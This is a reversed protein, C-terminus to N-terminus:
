SRSYDRALERPVGKKKGSRRKLLEKKEMEICVGLKPSETRKINRIKEKTERQEVVDHQIQEETRPAEKRETKQSKADAGASSTGHKLGVTSISGSQLDLLFNCGAACSGCRVEKKPPTIKKKTRHPLSSERRSSRKPLWSQGLCVVEPCRRRRCSLPRREWDALTRTRCLM